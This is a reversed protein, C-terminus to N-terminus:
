RRLHEAVDGRPITVQERAALDKVTVTGDAAESEGVMLLFRAGIQEAFQFQRKFKGPEPYVDVRLGDERLATALALSASADGMFAVLADPGSAASPFLGLEDMVVELRDLGLTFGVAPVDRGLFMGVLNDYRGGGAISGSLKPHNAEFIPGTYYSLGRALSPDFQVLRSGANHEVLAFLEQLAAVGARGRESEALAGALGSLGGEVELISRLRGASEASVGRGLLEKTVGDWGIKDLKDVAVLASGELEPAIGSAEIMGFLVDRHNVRVVADDFGLRLLGTALCSLVEADAVLSTCGVIDADCQTFERFRGKQPRDARWVPAIQYRRFYRPIDNGYAAVVRALPVTLDYRLGLDALTDQSPAEGALARGLNAGRKLIRFILQDGEDGYKGMLTDLREFSPTSLPEFGHQEYVARITDVIYQRRRAAAPLLDRTGKAPKLSVM